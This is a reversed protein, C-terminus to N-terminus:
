SKKPIDFPRGKHSTGLWQFFPWIGNAIDDYGRICSEEGICTSLTIKQGSKQSLGKSKDQNVTDATLMRKSFALISCRNSTKEV